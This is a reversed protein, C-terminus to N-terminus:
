LESVVTVLVLVMVLPLVILLSVPLAVIALTDSVSVSSGDEVGEIILTKRLLKNLASCVAVGGGIMVESVALSLAVLVLVPPTSVPIMVTIESLLIGLGVSVLM